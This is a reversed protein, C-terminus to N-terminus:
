EVPEDAGRRKRRRWLWGAAGLAALGPVLARGPSVGSTASNRGPLKGRAKRKAVRWVLWGLTANRRNVISM